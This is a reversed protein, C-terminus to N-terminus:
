KPDLECLGFGGPWEEQAHVKFWKSLNISGYDPFAEESDDTESGSASKSSTSDETDESDRKYRNQTAYFIQSDEEQLLM